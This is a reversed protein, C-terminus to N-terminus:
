PAVRVENVLLSLAAPPIAGAGTPWVTGTFVGEVQESTLNPDFASSNFFASATLLLAQGIHGPLGTASGIPQTVDYGAQLNVVQIMMRGYIKGQTFILKRTNFDDIIWGDQDPTAPLVAQKNLLVQGISVVPWHKLLVYNTGNGDYYETWTGLTIDRAIHNRITDSVALALSAASTPDIKDTGIWNQM